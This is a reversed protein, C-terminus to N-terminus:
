TTELPNFFECQIKLWDGLMAIRISYNSEVTMKFVARRNHGFDCFWPIIEGEVPLTVYRWHLIREVKGKLPESQFAFFDKTFWLSFSICQLNLTQERKWDDYLVTMISTSCFGHSLYQQALSVNPVCKMGKDLEHNFVGPWKWLPMHMIVTRKWHSCLFQERWFFFCFFM